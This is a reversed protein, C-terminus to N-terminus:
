KKEKTVSTVDIVNAAPSVESQNKKDKLLDEIVRYEGQLRFLEEDVAQKQKALKNFRDEAAKKRAQLDKSAQLNSM